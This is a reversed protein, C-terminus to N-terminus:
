RRTAAYSSTHRRDRAMLPGPCDTLYRAWSLHGFISANRGRDCSLLYRLPQMNGASASLRALDVLERLIDLNIDVEEYFRRYSRNKVILDQIM